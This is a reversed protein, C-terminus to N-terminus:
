KHFIRIFIVGGYIGVPILILWFVWEYFPLSKILIFLMTIVSLVIVETDAKAVFGFIIMLILGLFGLIIQDGAMSTLGSGITSEFGQTMNDQLNTYNVGAM